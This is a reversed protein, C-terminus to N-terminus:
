RSCFITHFFRSQKHLVWRTHEVTCLLADWDQNNYSLARKHLSDKSFSINQFIHETYNLLLFSLICLSLKERCSSLKKYCKPFLSTVLSVRIVCVRQCDRVRLAILTFWRVNVCLFFAKYLSQMLICGRIKSLKKRSAHQSHCTTTFM